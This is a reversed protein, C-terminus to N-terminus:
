GESLIPANSVRTTDQIYAGIEKTRQKSVREKECSELLQVIVVIHDQSTRFRIKGRLVELPMGHEIILGGISEEFFDLQPYETMNSLDIHVISHDIVNLIEKQLMGAHYCNNDIRAKLDIYHISM